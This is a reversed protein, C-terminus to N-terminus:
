VPRSQKPQVGFFNMSNNLRLKLDGKEWGPYQKKMEQINWDVEDAFLAVIKDLDRAQISASFKELINKTQQM